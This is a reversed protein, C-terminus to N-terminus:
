NDTDFKFGVCKLINKIRTRIKPGLLSSFVAKIDIALEDRMKLKKREKSFSVGEKKLFRIASPLFSGKVIGHKFKIINKSVGIVNTYFGQNDLLADKNWKKEIEWANLSGNGLEKLLYERRFIGIQLNRAYSMKKPLYSFDGELKRGKRIPKLRCFDINYKDMLDLLHDIKKEDVYDSLFLDDCMVLVYPAEIMNLAWISRDVWGDNEKYNNLVTIDSYCQENTSLIFEYKRNKWYKNMCEYFISFIDSYSNPSSVYIVMRNHKSM